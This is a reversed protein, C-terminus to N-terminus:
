QRAQPADTIQLAPEKTVGEWSLELSVMAHQGQLGFHQVWHPTGQRQSSMATSFIPGRGAQSQAGQPMRGRCCM